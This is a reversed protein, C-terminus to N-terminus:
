KRYTALDIVRPPEDDPGDPQDEIWQHSCAYCGHWGNAVM